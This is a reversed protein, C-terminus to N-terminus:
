LRNRYEERAATFGSEVIAIVDLLDLDDFRGGTAEVAIEDNEDGPAEVATESGKDDSTSVRELGTEVPEGSGEDDDSRGTDVRDIGSQDIGEADRGGVIRLVFLVAGVVVAALVLKKGIGDTSMHLVDGRRCKFTTAEPRM